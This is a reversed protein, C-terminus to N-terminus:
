SILADEKKEPSGIMGEEYAPTMRAEWHGAKFEVPYSPNM